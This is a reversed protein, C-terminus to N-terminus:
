PPGLMFKAPFMSRLLLMALDEATSNKEAIPVLFGNSATKLAEGQGGLDFGWVPYGTALAEHAAFCFTEPCISPVLFMDICYKATLEALDHLKYGGHVLSPAVLLKSSELLGLVVVRHSMQAQQVLRSMAHLVRSGKPIGIDGLVGIGKIGECSTQELQQPTHLLHHPRVLIKAEAFPYAELVIEKSSNSFVQVENAAHIVKGWEEQWQYLQLVSGDSNAYTHAPDQTRGPRPVGVYCNNSDLLNFSPSIMYYDHVLLKVEDLETRQLNLLLAPLRQSSSHGVGCSYVVTRHKLPDLIRYVGQLKKFSATTKGNRTFQTVQWPPQKGVKLVIPMGGQRIETRLENQLWRYAGGGWPHAIYIKSPGTTQTKAWAIAMALRPIALPDKAIFSKVERDFEPYRTNIIESHARILRKKRVAGFTGGGAHGVFLSALGVHKGGFSSARRCWDVEEGYGPRFVTDFAPIKLLYKINMAMCFGVGTPAEVVQSRRSWDQAVHDLMKVHGDILKAKRGLVPVSFITADNSMPTVSAIDSDLLIPELLRSAWDKPLRVDTNLLIVHNGIEIARPFASNVADVFGREKARNQLLEATLTGNTHRAATWARVLKCVRVDRPQDDVLLIHSSVDTNRELDNLVNSLHSYGDSVPLIITVAEQKTQFAIAQDFHQVFTTWLFGAIAISITRSITHHVWQLGGCGKM